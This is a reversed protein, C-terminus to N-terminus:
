ITIYEWKYWWATNKIWKLAQCIWSKSIWLYNDAETLTDWNNIFCWEKDNQTIKKWAFSKDWKMWLWSKNSKQWLIRYSHKMNESRTCYELNELRNDNKIWNKHNVERNDKWTFSFLALRHIKISWPKTWPKYLIVYKYWKNDKPKLFINKWFKISKVNWKNSIQYHWEYWIINKWIEM